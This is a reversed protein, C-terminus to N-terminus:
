DSSAASDQGDQSDNSDNLDFLGAQIPADAKVLYRKLAKEQIVKLLKHCLDEYEHTRSIDGGLRYYVDDLWLLRKYQEETLM